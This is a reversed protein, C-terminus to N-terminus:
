ILPNICRAKKKFFSRCWVTFKGPSNSKEVYARLGLVSKEVCDDISSLGRGGDKRGIYLRDVDDKPYFAKHMKLLKRTRRDIAHLEDVTWDLFPVSYRM